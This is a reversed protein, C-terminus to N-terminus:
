RKSNTDPNDLNGMIYGVFGSVAEKAEALKKLAEDYEKKIRPRRM